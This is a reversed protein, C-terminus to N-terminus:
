LDNYNVIVRAANRCHIVPAGRMTMLPPSNGSSRSAPHQVSSWNRHIVIRGYRGNIAIVSASVTRQPPLNGLYFANIPPISFTIESLILAFYLIQQILCLCQLIVHSRNTQSLFYAAVKSGTKYKSRISNLPWFKKRVANISLLQLHLTITLEYM